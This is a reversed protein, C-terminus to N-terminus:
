HKTYSAFAQRTMRRSTVILISPPCVATPRGDAADCLAERRYRGPSLAYGMTRLGQQSAQLGQSGLKGM